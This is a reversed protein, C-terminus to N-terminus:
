AREARKSGPVAHAHPRVPEPEPDELLIALGALMAAIEVTAAAFVSFGQWSEHDGFLGITSALTFAGLTAAGFCAALVGAGPHRWRVLLVAIVIGGAINLLFAPGIVHVSRMGQLWLALHIAVSVLVAVAATYRLTM